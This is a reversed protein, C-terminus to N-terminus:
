CPGFPSETALLPTAAGRTWWWERPGSPVALSAEASLAFRLFEVAQPWAPPAPAKGCAARGRGLVDLTIADPGAYSELLLGVAYAVDAEECFSALVRPLPEDGTVLLVRGSDLRRLVGLAELFACAFTDRGAALASAPQRNHTAISFLGAQTNHVSHSFRSASVPDQRALGELLRVTAVADGHRSAFVTPVAALEEAGGCALAVKLMM